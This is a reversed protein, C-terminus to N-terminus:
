NPPVSTQSPFAGGAGNRHNLKKSRAARVSGRGGPGQEPPQAKQETRSPRLRAKGAGTGITSSKAGSTEPPAEGERREAAKLVITFNFFQRQVILAQGLDDSGSAQYAIAHTLM